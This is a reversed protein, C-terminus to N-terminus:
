VELAYQRELFAGDRHMVGTPAFAKARYLREASANNTRVDLFVRRRGISRTWAIVADILASGVGRRRARPDVWMSILYVTDELDAHRVGRVMGVDLDDLVAVFTAIDRLQRRWSAETWKAADEHVTGFADPADLLSALRIKALRSWADEDIREIRM